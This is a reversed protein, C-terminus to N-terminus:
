TANLSPFYPPHHFIGGSHLVAFDRRLSHMGSGRGIAVSLSLIIVHLSLLFCSPNISTRPTPDGAVEMQNTHLSKKRGRVRTKEQHLPPYVRVM